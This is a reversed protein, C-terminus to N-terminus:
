TMLTTTSCWAKLKMSSEGFSIVKTKVKHVEELVEKTTRMDILLPQKEAV